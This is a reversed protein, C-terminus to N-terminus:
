ITIYAEFIPNATIIFLIFSMLSSFYTLFFKENPTKYLIFQFVFIPIHQNNICLIYYIFSKLLLYLKQKPKKIEKCDTIKFIHLTLNFNFTKVYQGRLYISKSNCISVLVFCAFQLM